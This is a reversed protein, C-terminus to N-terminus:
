HAGALAAVPDTSAGDRRVWAPKLTSAFGLRLAILGPAFSGPILFMASYGIEPAIWGGSLSGGPARGVFDAAGTL